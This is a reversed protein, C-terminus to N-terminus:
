SKSRTKTTMVRTNHSQQRTIRRSLSNESTNNIQETECSRFNMIEDTQRLIERATSIETACEDKANNKNDTISHEGCFQSDTKRQMNEEDHLSEDKDQHAENHCDKIDHDAITDDIVSSLKVFPKIQSSSYRKIM